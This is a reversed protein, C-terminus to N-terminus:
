QGMQIVKPHIHTPIQLGQMSLMKDNNGEGVFDIRPSTLHGRYPHASDTQSTKQQMGGEYLSSEVAFLPHGRVEKSEM